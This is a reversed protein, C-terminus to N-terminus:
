GGLAVYLADWSFTLPGGILAAAHMAVFFAQPPVCVCECVHACVCVCACVCARVPQVCSLSCRVLYGVDTDTFTRDQFYPRLQQVRLDSFPVTYPQYPPNDLRAPDFDSAKALQLGLLKTFAQTLCSLESANLCPM